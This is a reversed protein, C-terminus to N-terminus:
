HGITRVVPQITGTQGVSAIMEELTASDMYNRPHPPDPQLGALPVQYLQNTLYREM